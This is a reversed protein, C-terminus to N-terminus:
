KGIGLANRLRCTLRVNMRALVPWIKAKGSLGMRDPHLQKMVDELTRFVQDREEANAMGLAQQGHYMCTFFLNREGEGCLVPFNEELYKQRAVKAEVADLRKLTYAEGMISGARQRYYYGTYGTEAFRRIRGFVRYSWFEDEHYRGPEFFIGEITERKYLKNWVVQQIRNRILYRLPDVGEIVKVSVQEQMVEPLEEGDTFRQYGCGSAQCDTSVLAEYLCRIFQPAICDDSDIFAVYDGTCSRIGTNRAASLGGNEQHIVRIRPDGEAYRDCIEGSRDKSGDDVLIIELDEYNQMRISDVCQELYREVNYVPVIVSIRETGSM